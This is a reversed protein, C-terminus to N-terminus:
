LIKNWLRNVTEESCLIEILWFRQFPSFHLYWMEIPRKISVKKNVGFMISIQRVSKRVRRHWFRFARNWLMCHINWALRETCAWNALLRLVAEVAAGCYVKTYNITMYRATLTVLVLFDLSGQAYLQINKLHRNSCCWSPLTLCVVCNSYFCSVAYLIM